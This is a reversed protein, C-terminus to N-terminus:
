DAFRNTLYSAVGVQRARKIATEAFRQHKRSIGSVRAPSIKGFENILWGFTKPDKWDVRIKTASFWCNRRKSFRRRDKSMDGNESDELDDTVSGPKVKSYPCKFDKLYAAGEEDTDAVKIIMNKLVGENIKFLRGLEKNVASDAKYIFFLFHGNRTGNSTPQAFQLTGWNDELLIEGNFKSVTEKVINILAAAGDEGVQSNAILALEYVM